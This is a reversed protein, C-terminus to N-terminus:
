GIIPLTGILATAATLAGGVINFISAVLGTPGLLCLALGAALTLVGNVLGLLLGNVTCGLQVVLGGLGPGGPCTVVGTVLNIVQLLTVTTATLACAIVSTVAGVLATLASVAVTVLGTVVGLQANAPTM